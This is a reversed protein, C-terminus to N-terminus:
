TLFIDKDAVAQKAKHVIDLKRYSKNRMESEIIILIKNKDNNDLKDSHLVKVYSNHYHKNAWGLKKGM